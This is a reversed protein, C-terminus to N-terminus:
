RDPEIVPDLPNVVGDRERTKPDHDEDEDLPSPHGSTKFQLTTLASAPLAGRLLDIYLWSVLPIVWGQIEIVVKTRAHPTERNPTLSGM